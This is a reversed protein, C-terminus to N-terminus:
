AAEPWSTNVTEYVSWDGLHGRPFWVGTLVFIFRGTRKYELLEIKQLSFGPEGGDPDNLADAIARYAALITTADANGDQLERLVSGIHRRLVRSGLRTTLCKRISQVCHKWGLLMKGTRADIGARM